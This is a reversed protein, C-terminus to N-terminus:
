AHTIAKWGTNGTGTVKLYAAGAGATTDTYLSGAPAAVVGEPTGAGEAIFPGTLGASTFALVDRRGSGGADAIGYFVPLGSAADGISFTKGAAAAGRYTVNSNTPGITATDTGADYSAFAVSGASNFLYAPSRVNAFRASANTAALLGDSDAYFDLGVDGLHMESPAALSDLSAVNWQTGNDDVIRFATTVLSYTSIVTQLVRLTNNIYGRTTDLPDPEFLIAPNVGDSVGVSQFVPTRVWSAVGGVIRLAYDGDDTPLTPLSGGTSPGTPFGFPM